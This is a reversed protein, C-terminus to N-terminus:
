IAGLSKWFSLYAPMGYIYEQHQQEEYSQATRAGNITRPPRHRLHDSNRAWEYTYQGAFLTLGSKHKIM